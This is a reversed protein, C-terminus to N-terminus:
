WLVLTPAKILPLVARVDLHEYSKTMGRVNAPSAGGRLLRAWWERLEPDRAEERSVFAGLSSATGWGELLFRQWERIVEVPIGEPYDPAETVRAYTGFEVLASTRDPHTAAFMAAATGGESVGFVDARQVGAHDLIAAMDEAVAEVTYGDVSRDSLGFGRKDFAIVRAFSGLREFFRRAIRAELGIELHGVFGPVFIMDREGSGFVRYAISVDGNRAYRIEGADM